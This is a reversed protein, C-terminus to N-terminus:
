KQSHLLTSQDSKPRLKDEVHENLEKEQVLTGCCVLIEIIYQVATAIKERQSFTTLKFLRFLKNSDFCFLLIYVRFVPTALTLLLPM